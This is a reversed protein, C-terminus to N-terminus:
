DDSLPLLNISQWLAQSDTLLAEFQHLFSYAKRCVLQFVTSGHAELENEKYPKDLWKFFDIIPRRERNTLAIM